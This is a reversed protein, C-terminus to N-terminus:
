YIVMNDSYLAKGPIFFCNLSPMSKLSGERLRKKKVSSALAM